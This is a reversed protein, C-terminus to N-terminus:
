GSLCRFRLIPHLEIANPAVGTQGHLYDFFAVGTIRARRCVRVARRAALMQVRRVLKARSICGLSPAEAIMHFRGDRLIVHLDGDDEPRIETVTATVQFVHREFPLRTYPLAHPAPRTVLFQLTTTQVSLLRPRDQLTKVTWRETGCLSRIPAAVEAGVPAASAVLGAVVVGALAIRRGSACRPSKPAYAADSM